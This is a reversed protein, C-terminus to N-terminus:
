INQLRLHIQVVRDVIQAWWTHITRESVWGRANIFRKEIEENYRRQTYIIWSKRGRWRRAHRDAEQRCSIFIRKREGYTKLTIDAAKLWLYEDHNMNYQVARIAAIEVPHGPLNGKGGGMNNDFPINRNLYEARRDEYEQKKDEYALLYEEAIMRDNKMSDIIETEAAM